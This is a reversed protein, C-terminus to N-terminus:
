RSVILYIGQRGDPSLGVSVTGGERVDDLSGAKTENKMVKVDPALTVEDIREGEGKLVLKRKGADFSAVRRNTLRPVEATIPGVKNTDSETVLSVKCYPNLSEVPFNDRVLHTGLVLRVTTWGDYELDQEEFREALTVIKLRKHAHDAKVLLGSHFTHHCYPNAGFTGRGQEVQVVHRHDPAFVLMAPQETRLATLAAAKHNVLVKVDPALLATRAVSGARISVKGAATDLRYLYGWRCDADNRVSAVYDGDDSMSLYVRYGPRLDDLKLTRGLPDTVPLDRKLLSFTKIEKDGPVSVTISGAGVDLARLTGFLKQKEQAQALAPLTLVLVLSLTRPHM